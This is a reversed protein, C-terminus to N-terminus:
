AKHLACALDTRRERRGHPFGWGPRRCVDPASWRVPRGPCSVYSPSGGPVVTLSPQGTARKGGEGVLFRVPATVGAHLAFEDYEARGHDDMARHAAKQAGEYFGEFSLSDDM